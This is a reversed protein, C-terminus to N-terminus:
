RLRRVLEGTVSAYDLAGHSDPAYEIIPQHWSPSEALRINERVVTETVLAGFQKRLAEVCERALRTRTVRCPVIAGLRVRSRRGVVTVTEALTAVGELAMVHPEVPVVLWRAALLASLTLAGLDAPCDLLVWQYKRPKLGSLATPITGPDAELTILNPSSPVLDVGWPTEVIYDAIPAKDSYIEATDQEPREPLMWATLNSQRDLDILLVSQGLDALCAAVNAATTTKGVGGKENAVAVIPM